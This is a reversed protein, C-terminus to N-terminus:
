KMEKFADNKTPYQTSQASDDTAQFLLQEFVALNDSGFAELNIGKQTLPDTISLSANKDLTLVFPADPSLNRVKRERALARLTGRLFGQEGSLRLSKSSRSNQEGSNIVEVLIDGNSGDKFVLFTSKVVAVAQEHTQSTFQTEYTVYLLTAIMILLMMKFHHKGIPMLQKQYANTLSKGQPQLFVQTM